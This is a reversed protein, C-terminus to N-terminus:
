KEASAGMTLMSRDTGFTVTPVAVPWDCFEVPVHYNFRGYSGEPNGTVPFIMGPNQCVRIPTPGSHSASQVTVNVLAATITLSARSMGTSVPHLSCDTGRRLLIVRCGPSDYRGFIGCFAFLVVNSAYLM